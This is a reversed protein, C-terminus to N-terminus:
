EPVVINDPLDHYYLLHKVYNTVVTYILITTQIEICGIEGELEKM